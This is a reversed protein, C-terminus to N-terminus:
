RLARLEADLERAPALGFCLQIRCGGMRTLKLLRPSHAIRRFPWPVLLDTPMVKGVVTPRFGRRKQDARGKTIRGSAGPKLWVNGASKCHSRNAVLGASDTRLDKLNGANYSKAVWTFSLPSM